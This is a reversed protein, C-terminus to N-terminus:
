AFFKKVLGLSIDGYEKYVDQVIEAVLYEASEMCYAMGIVEIGSVARYKLWLEGSSYIDMINANNASFTIYYCHRYLKKKGALRRYKAPKKMVKEDMYMKKNWIFM